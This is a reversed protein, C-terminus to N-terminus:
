HHDKPHHEASRSADFKRLTCPPEEIPARAFYGDRNRDPTDDTYKGSRQQPRDTIGVHSYQQHRHECPSGSSCNRALHKPSLNPLDNTLDCTDQQTSDSPGDPQKDLSIIIRVLLVRLFAYCLQNCNPNIGFHRGAPTLGGAESKFFWREEKRLEPNSKKKM